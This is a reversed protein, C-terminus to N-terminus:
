EGAQRGPPPGAFVGQSSNFYTGTESEQLVVSRVQYYHGRTGDPDRYTCRALTAGTLRKYPGFESDARYVHYGAVKRSPPKWWLRVGREMYQARLGAPPAVRHLRLTPDGLLAIHVGRPYSGTPQYDGGANDQTRRLCDGITEGMGMPHLYWQPRGGWGCTLAGGETALAARMLNNTSDWDGFYSGFLMTFVAEIPIKVLDATSGFGGMNEYGGAGCGYFWLSMGPKINPWTAKRVNEPGLLTVMNQWGSCAFREGHRAFGDHILGYEAVEMRGHRYAHNRDLYARLLATEGAPFAPLGHFDVRGVALQVPGPIESQDFKGDGPVNLQRGEGTYNVSEDTWSGDLAGYYVDAPWAGNHDKHGDPAFAGAYPVPVHGLLLVTRAAGPARDYESRIIQKIEPPPQTAAVDHRRVEWGDGVLDLMLRRIADALPEALSREVLLLLTGRQDRLPVGSGAWFYDTAAPDGARLVAYEYVRGGAVGPDRFEGGPVGDALEQWEKGPLRRAIRYGTGPADPLDLVVALASSDIRVRTEIQCQRSLIGDEPFFVLPVSDAVRKKVDLWVVGDEVFDGILRAHAYGNTGATLRGGAVTRRASRLRVPRGALAAPAIVECETRGERRNVRVLARAAVPPSCMNSLRLRHMMRNDQFTGLMPFWALRDQPRRDREHSNVVVQFAVERGSQPEIGLSGWPLLAELRYGTDTKVRGVVAEAPRGKLGPANRHDHLNTRPEPFKPDMGPAVLWQCQDGAGTRPALFLEVSDRKWLEDQRDAENWDRGAVELLVLLGAENWGLRMAAGCDVRDPIPGEAPVLVDVRFGDEKWDAADGDIAVSELRPISFVPWQSTEPAGAKDGAACIGAPFRAALFVTIILCHIIRGTSM